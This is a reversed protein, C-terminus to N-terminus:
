HGVLPELLRHLLDEVQAGGGDDLREVEEARHVPARGGVPVEAPRGRPRLDGAEHVRRAGGPDLEEGPLAGVPGICEPARGPPSGIISTATAWSPTSRVVLEGTTMRRSRWPVRTRGIQIPGASALAMAISSCPTLNWRGSVWSRRLCTMTPSPPLRW